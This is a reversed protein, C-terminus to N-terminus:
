PFMKVKRRLIMTAPGRIGKILTRAFEQSVGDFVMGNLQVIEDGKKLGKQDASSGSKVKTITIQDNVDNYSFVGFAKLSETEITIIQEIEPDIIKANDNAMIYGCILAMLSKCFWTVNDASAGFVFWVFSIVMMLVHVWSLNKYNDATYAGAAANILVMSFTCMRATLVCYVLSSIGILSLLIDLMLVCLTFWQYQKMQGLEKKTKEMCNKFDIPSAHVNESDDEVKVGSLLGNQDNGISSEEESKREESEESQTKLKEVEAEKVSLEKLCHRLDDELTAIREDRGKLATEKEEALKKRRNVNDSIDFSDAAPSSDLADEVSVDDRASTPAASANAAAQQLQSASAFLAHKELLHKEMYEPGYATFKATLICRKCNEPYKEWKPVVSHIKAPVVDTVTRAVPTVIPVLEAHKLQVHLDLTEQGLFICDCHECRDKFQEPAVSMSADDVTKIADGERCQRDQQLLQQMSEQQARADYSPPHVIGGKWPATPALSEPLDASDFEEDILAAMIEEFSPQLPLLGPEIDGPVVNGSNGIERPNPFMNPTKLSEFLTETFDNELDDNVSAEEIAAPVDRRSRDQQLLQQMSEQQA